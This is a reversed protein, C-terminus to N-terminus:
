KIPTLHCGLLGRGGWTTPTIFLELRSGGRMVVISIPQGASERVIGPISTLGPKHTSSVHAFRLLLDGNCLGAEASPSGVLVEDIIAIPTTDHNQEQHSAVAEIDSLQLCGSPTIKSTPEVVQSGVQGYLQPLLIEIEKMIIKFDVYVNNGIKFTQFLFVTIITKGTNIVRLRARKSKVNVIDIDGRPFGESDVLSDTIGAPPEGLM